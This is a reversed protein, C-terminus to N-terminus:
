EDGGIVDLTSGGHEAHAYVEARSKGMRELLESVERRVERRVADLERGDPTEGGAWVRSREVDLTVSLGHKGAVVVLGSDTTTKDM